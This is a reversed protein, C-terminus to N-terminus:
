FWVFDVRVWNVYAPNTLSQAYEHAEQLLETFRTMADEPLQRDKEFDGATYYFTKTYEKMPQNPIVGAFVQWAAKLAATMAEADQTM